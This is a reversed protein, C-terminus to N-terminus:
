VAGRERISISIFPYLYPGYKKSKKKGKPPAYTDRLEKGNAGKLKKGTIGVESGLIFGFKASVNHKYKALIVRYSLFYTGNAGLIKEGSRKKKDRSKVLKRKTRQATVGLRELKRAYPVVNIFMVRDGPKIPPSSKLWTSLETLTTAVVKGNYFVFNGALYLGTVIKSKKLIEVYTDKIIELASEKSTIFEIKGLPSVSFIDKSRSGDVVVIPTKDFGKLQEEKLTELSIKILAEKTFELFQRLSVEGKLDSEISYTTSKNGIERVSVSATLGM